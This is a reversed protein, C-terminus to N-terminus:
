CFARNNKSFLLNLPIKNFSRGFKINFNLTFHYALLEEKWLASLGNSVCSLNSKWCWFSEEVLLLFISLIISLISYLFFLRFHNGVSGM